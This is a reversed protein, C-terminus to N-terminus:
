TIQEEYSVVEEIRSMLERYVEQEAFIKEKNFLKQIQKFTEVLNNADEKLLNQIKEM